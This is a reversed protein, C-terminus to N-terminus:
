SDSGFHGVEGGFFLSTNFFCSWECQLAIAIASTACTSLLLAKLLSNTISSLLNIAYRLRLSQLVLM